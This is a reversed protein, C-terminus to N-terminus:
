KRKVAEYKWSVVSRMWRAQDAHLAPVSYYNLPRDWEDRKCCIRTPIRRVKELWRCDGKAIAIPLWAFFVEGEQLLKLNAAVRREEKAQEEERTLGCKFKM